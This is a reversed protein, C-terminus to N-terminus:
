RKRGLDCDLVRELLLIMRFFIVEVELDLNVAFAGFEISHPLFVRLATMRSHNALCVHASVFFLFTHESIASSVRSFMRALSINKARTICM